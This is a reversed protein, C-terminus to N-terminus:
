DPRPRKWKQAGELQQTQRGLWKEAEVLQQDLPKVSWPSQFLGHIQADVISTGEQMGAIDAISVRYSKLAVLKIKTVEVFRSQQDLHEKALEKASKSPSTSQHGPPGRSPSHSGIQLLSPNTPDSGVTLITRTPQGAGRLQQLVSPGLTNATGTVDLRMYGSMMQQPAVHRQISANPSNGSPLNASYVFASAPLYSWWWSKWSSCSVSRLWIPSCDLAQRGASLAGHDFWSLYICIATCIALSCLASWFAVGYWGGYRVPTCGSSEDPASRRRLTSFKFDAGCEAASCGVPSSTADSSCLHTAASSAALGGVVFSCPEVDDWTPVGCSLPASRSCACDGGSCRWDATPGGYPETGSGAGRKGKRPRSDSERGQGKVSRSSGEQTELGSLRQSELPMKCSARLEVFWMERLAM